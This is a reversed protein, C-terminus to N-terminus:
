KMRISLRVSLRASPLVSLRCDNLWSSAFLGKRFIAFAGLSSVLPMSCSVDYDFYYIWWCYTPYALSRQRCDMNDLFVTPSTQDRGTNEDGKCNNQKCFPGMLRTCVWHSLSCPVVFRNSELHPSAVFLTVCNSQESRGSANLHEATVASRNLDSNVKTDIRSVKIIGGIFSYGTRQFHILVLTSNYM